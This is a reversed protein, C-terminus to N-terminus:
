EIRTWLSPPHPLRMCAHHNLRPGAMRRALRLRFHQAGPPTRRVLSCCPLTLRRTRAMLYAGCACPNELGPKGAVTEQSSPPSSNRSLPSASPSELMLTVMWPVHIASSGHGEVAPAIPFHAHGEAGLPRMMWMAQSRRITSHPISDPRQPRRDPSAGADM